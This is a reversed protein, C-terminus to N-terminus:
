CQLIDKKYIHAIMVGCLVRDERKSLLNQVELIIRENQKARRARM